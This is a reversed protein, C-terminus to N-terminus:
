EAAAHERHRHRSSCRLEQGVRDAERQITPSRPSLHEHHWGAGRRQADASDFLTRAGAIEVFRFAGPDGERYAAEQTYDTVHLLQKTAIVRAPPTLPGPRLVPERRRIEAFAPPPNHMAVVRLGGDEYLQLFGFNAECLRAANELMAQFIPELQGASSSIVRLVEATAKERELAEDRERTRRALETEQGV